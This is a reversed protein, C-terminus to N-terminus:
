VPNFVFSVVPAGTCKDSVRLKSDNLQLILQQNDVVDNLVVSPTQMIKVLGDEVCKKLSAKLSPNWLRWRRVWETPHGIDSYTENAAMERGYYDVFPVRIKQGSVNKVISYLCASQGM